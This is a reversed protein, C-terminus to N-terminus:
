SSERKRRYSFVFLFIGLLVIFLSTIQSISLGITRMANPSYYRYFDLIFRDLGYLILFLYFVFGDFLKKRYIFFLISFIILAAGAAIIQTPIVPLSHTAGPEIIGDKLQEYYAPPFDKRPFSVGCTESVSGYCCGNLFCGIRGLAIGLAFGPAIIDAMLPISYKNTKLYMYGALVGGLFGGYFVMGGEWIRVIGIIDNRFYQFNEIAFWLRAGIVAGIIVWTAFDIVRAREMNERNAFYLSVLLASIFAVAMMFGYSYLTFPGLTFIIRHM